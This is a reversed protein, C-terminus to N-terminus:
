LALQPQGNGMKWLAMARRIGNKNCAAVRISRMVSNM